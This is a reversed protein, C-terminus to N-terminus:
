AHAEEANPCDPHHPGLAAMCHPCASEADTPFQSRMRRTHRREREASAHAMQQQRKLERLARRQERPPPGAAELVSVVWDIEAVMLEPRAVAM